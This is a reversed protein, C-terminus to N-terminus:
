QFRQPHTRTLNWLLIGGSSVVTLLWSLVVAWAAGMLGFRQVLGPLLALLSIIGLVRIILNTRFLHMCSVARGLLVSVNRLAAALMLCLALNAYQSFQTGYLLGLIPGGALAMALVTAAGASSVWLLVRALVRSFEATRGAAYHAAMRPVAAQSLSGVLLAVAVMLGGAVAFGGLSENGLYYSITYRPISTSLAMSATALGLPLSLWALSVMVSPRWRPRCSDDFASPMRACIRATRPLDFLLLTGLAAVAFGCVGWRLDGTWWTGLVFLALGLPGRIMLSIAVFNMREHRQLMAHFIDCVSELTVALGACLILGATSPSYGILGGGAIALMALMATLLRLGLYDRFRYRGAADTVLVGSLGLDAITGIPNCVALALALQGIMEVNGIRALLAIRAWCCAANVINGAALWSFNRRLSVAEARSPGDAIVPRSDLSGRGEEHRTPIPRTLPEACSAM